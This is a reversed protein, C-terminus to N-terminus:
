RVAIYGFRGSRYVRLLIQQSDLRAAERLNKLNRITQRNAAVIVDGPRLGAQAAGSDPDVGTVLVGAGLEERDRFNQLETGSLRRNIRAGRVKELDDDEVLLEVELARGDRLLQLDVKDGIFIIAAQSNFEDANRIDRERVRTIIDGAEIGAAEASSDPMVEVVLVGERFDVNFAEALDPALDQVEVGLHGRRVEGHAILQEMVARAMNSPIAFGIGVNGGAPTFIATNIGVLRGNLDVLAGGSNGPNISADTQIFDEYGEIGLGSRGLASIIGSTVTQNLGFPNGIAVVFDGVRLGGSDAFGIEVLEDADVKLVALDVQPDSGVMTADLLRGDALTVDINDARQVVHNNTVIYGRDADVVVGSGASRTQRYRQRDPVNFFRRFFPDEFLPNRVPVTTSTAINVVAPNVRDLMPALTPMDQGGPLELPLAASAPVAATAAVFVAALLSRLM